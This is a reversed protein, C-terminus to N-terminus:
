RVIVSRKYVYLEMDDIYMPNFRSLFVKEDSFERMLVQKVLSDDYGLYTSCMLRVQDKDLHDLIYELVSEHKGHIICPNNTPYTNLANFNGHKSWMVVFVNEDKFNKQSAVYEYILDHMEPPLFRIQQEM